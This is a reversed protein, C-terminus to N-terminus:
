SLFEWFGLMQSTVFGLVFWFLRKKPWGYVFLMAILWVISVLIFREGNGMSPFWNFVRTVDFTMLLIDM